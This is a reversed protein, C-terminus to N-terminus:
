GSNAEEFLLGKTTIILSAACAGTPSSQFLAIGAIGFSSVDFNTTGIAINHATGGFTSEM